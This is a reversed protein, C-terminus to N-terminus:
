EVQGPRSHRPRRVAWALVLIALGWAGFAYAFLLPIGAVTAEAGRDFLRLALPSFLVLGLLFVAALREGLADERGM